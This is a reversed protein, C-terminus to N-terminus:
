CVTLDVTWVVKRADKENEKQAVSNGDMEGDWLFALKASREVMLDVMQAASSDVLLDALRKEMMLAKLDVMSVVLTSVLAGLRGALLAATAFVMWVAMSVDMPAVTWDALKLAWHESLGASMVVLDAVTLVVLCDVM